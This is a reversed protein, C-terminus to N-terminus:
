EVCNNSIENGTVNNGTVSAMCEVTMSGSNEFSGTNLFIASTTLEVNGFNEFMNRNNFRFDSTLTGQNKVEGINDFGSHEFTVIGNNNVIGFNILRGNEQTGWGKFQL